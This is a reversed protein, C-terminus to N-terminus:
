DAGGENLFSTMGRCFVYCQGMNFFKYGVSMREPIGSFDAVTASHGTLLGVQTWYDELDWLEGGSTLNTMLLQIQFGVRDKKTTFTFPKDEVVDYYFPRKSEFELVEYDICIEKEKERKEGYLM